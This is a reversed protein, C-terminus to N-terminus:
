LKSNPIMVCIIEATAAPSPDGFSSFAILNFVFRRRAHHYGDLFAFLYLENGLEIKKLFTVSLKATVVNLSLHATSPTQLLMQSLVWRSSSIALCDFATALIGGHLFGPYGCLNSRPSFRSWSLLQSPQAVDLQLSKLYSAQSYLDVASPLVLTRLGICEPNDKGCGICSEGGQPLREQACVLLTPDKRIEGEIEVWDPIWQTM